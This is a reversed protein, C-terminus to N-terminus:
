LLLFRFVFLMHNVSDVLFLRLLCVFLYIFLYPIFLCVFQSECVVRPASFSTSQPKTCNIVTYVPATFVNLYLAM